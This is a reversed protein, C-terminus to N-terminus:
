LGKEQLLESIIGTAQDIEERTIILPPVLRIIHDKIVNLLIGKELGARPLFSIDAECEVGVMLGQGRIEKICSHSQKLEKLKSQLYLGQQHAKESIDERIMTELTAVGCAMALPNGGFTSAHSGPAFAEAVAPRALVAGAPFGNALAKALTMIDPVCEEHMYGFLKGTRGMGTQVEDFVLLLDHLDCLARVKQLYGQPPVRIGGEGQIPEIMVAGVTEDIAEELADIDGYAVKKFGAPIPDFGKRFKDQGTAAVTALTRGHFSGDFTLIKAGSKNKNSSFRRVLKIAAENAEAGSNCFFAKAEFSNESLMRALTEQQPIHYLNSCHFLQAAQQQLAAAVVPHAHGLNCVAIGAVMDLYAKGGEDWVHCGKGKVLHLPLPSYTEMLYNM